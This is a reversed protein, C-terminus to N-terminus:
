LASAGDELLRSLDAKEVASPRFVCDIGALHHRLIMERIERADWARHEADVWVADYGFHAAMQPFYILPSGTSCIRAVQGARIKALVKSPRFMPACEPAAACRNGLASMDRGEGADM